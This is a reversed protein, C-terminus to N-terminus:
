LVATTAKRREIQKMHHRTHVLHFRPWQALTLPGLVPHNGIYVGPSFRELCRAHLEDMRVIETRIKQLAELGGLTGTPVVQKPSQRREPFYGVDAVIFSALRQKWSPRGGLPRNERIAKEMMRSTGSFALLLHELIQSACWKGEPCRLLQEESMSAATREIAEHIKSYDTNM